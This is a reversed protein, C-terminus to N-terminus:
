VLIVSLVDPITTMFQVAEHIIIHVYEAKLEDAEVRTSELDRELTNLSKEYMDQIDNLERDKAASDALLSLSAGSSAIIGQGLWPLLRSKIVSAGGYVGGTIEFTGRM